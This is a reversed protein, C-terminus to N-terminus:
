VLWVTVIVFVLLLVIFLCLRKEKRDFLEENVATGFISMVFGLIISSIIKMALM